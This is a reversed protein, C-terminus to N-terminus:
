GIGPMSSAFWVLLGAGLRPTLRDSAPPSQLLLQLSYHVLGGSSSIVLLMPLLFVGDAGRQQPVSRRCRLRRSTKPAALAPIGRASARWESYHEHWYEASSIAVASAGLLLQLDHERLQTSAQQEISALTARLDNTPASYTRVADFVAQLYPVTAESLVPTALGYNSATQVAEVSYDPGSLNFKRWSTTQAAISQLSIGEFGATTLFERLGDNVVQNLQEASLGSGEREANTLRVFVHALGENHFRGVDELTIESPATGDGACSAFIAAVGLVALVSALAARRSQYM